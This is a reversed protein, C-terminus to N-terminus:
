VVDGTIIRLIIHAQKSAAIGVRSAFLGEGADADSLQDGILHLRGLPRKSVIADGDGIGALGSAAVVVVGPLKKLLGSVLTAKESAGDLCEAIIACDRFLESCNEYTIRERIPVVATFPACGRLNDALALAKPMGVQDLRYRQRNLNSHEVVDFDVIVLRGIGARALNEAVVSGLGGAGAIGICTKELLETVAEPQRQLIKKKLEDM